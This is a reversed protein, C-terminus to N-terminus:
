TRTAVVSPLRRRAAARGYESHQWTSLSGNPANFPRWTEPATQAELARLTISGGRISMDDNLLNYRRIYRNALEQVDEFTYTKESFDTTLKHSKLARTVTSASLGSALVIRRIGDSSDDDEGDFGYKIADVHLSTLTKHPYGTLRHSIHGLVHRFRVDVKGVKDFGSACIACNSIFGPITGVIGKELSENVYKKVLRKESGPAQEYLKELNDEALTALRDDRAGGALRPSYGFGILCCDPSSVDVPM